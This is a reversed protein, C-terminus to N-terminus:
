YRRKRKKPELEEVARMVGKAGTVIPTISGLRFGAGINSMMTTKTASAPLAASVQSTVAHGVLLGTGQRTIDMATNEYKKKRRSMSM